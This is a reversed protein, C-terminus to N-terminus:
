GAFKFAVEDITTNQTAVTCVISSDANLITRVNVRRPAAGSEIALKLELELTMM